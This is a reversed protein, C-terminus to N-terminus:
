YMGKTCFLNAKFIPTTDSRQKRDSKEYVFGCNEVQGIFSERVRSRGTGRSGSQMVQGRGLLPGTQEGLLGTDRGGLAEAREPGDAEWAKGWVEARNSSGNM